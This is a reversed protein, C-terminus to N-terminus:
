LEGRREEVETKKSEKEMVDERDGRQRGERKEKEKKRTTRFCVM